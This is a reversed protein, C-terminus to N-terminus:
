KVFTFVFFQHKGAPNQHFPVFPIGCPYDEAKLVMKNSTLEKVQYVYNSGGSQSVDIFLCNYHYLWWGEMGDARMSDDKRFTMARYPYCNTIERDETLQGDVWTEIRTATHQWDRCFASESFQNTKTKDVWNEFVSFRGLDFNDEPSDGNADLANCAAASLLMLCGALFFAIKKMENCSCGISAFGAPINRGAPLNKM